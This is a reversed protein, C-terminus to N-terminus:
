KVLAHPGPRFVLAGGVDRETWGLGELIGVWNASLADGPALVAVTVGHTAIFGAAAGQVDPIPVGTTLTPYLPLRKYPNPAEPATLYGSAIPFRLKAASQWLMSNGGGGVPLLLATDHPTITNAYAPSSFLSPLVPMGRWYNRGVAPWLLVVAALALLWPLPRAGSHALWMAALVSVILVAYMVFRAPLMLGFVPLHSVIRWPLPIGTAGHVHLKGGLSCVLVVVLTGLMIRTGVRAWSQRVALVVIAILPLGLYAGGEVFGATFTRSTSAFHVGGVATILNPVVFSLVDNSLLNTRGPLVPLVGPQFSYYLYPSAIAATALYALGIPVLVARLRDRLESDGLVFALVLAVAGFITFSALVETSFGLQFILALTLLITLRVRGLEGALGRLVLHVIVPVLFVLTLHLHGLMQGLMYTSFGFLWGGVLSAWFSGTVRRCLLFATFAALVPSALMAVNYSFIAGGIATFPWFVLAAAPVSTGLAVDLGQPAYILHTVFPNLGHLVAHPWWALSWTFIGEDTGLCICEPPSGRHLMPSGFLLLALGAYIVAAVIAPPTALLRMAAPPLPHRVPDPLVSRRSIVALL